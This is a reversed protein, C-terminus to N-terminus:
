AASLWQKLWWLEAMLRWGKSQYSEANERRACHLSLHVLNYVTDSVIAFLSFSAKFRTCEHVLYWLYVALLCANTRAGSSEENRNSISSGLKRAGSNPDPYVEEKEKTATEQKTEM